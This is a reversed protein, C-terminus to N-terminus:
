LAKTERVQKAGGKTRTTEKLTSPRREARVIGAVVDARRAQAQQRDYATQMAMLDDASSGTLAEIRFAMDWTLAAQGTLVNHLNPRNVRMAEAAGVVALKLPGFVHEKIIPGPHPHTHEAAIQAMARALERAVPSGSTSPSAKAM